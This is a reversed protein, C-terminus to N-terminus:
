VGFTRSRTSSPIALGSQRALRRQRRCQISQGSRCASPRCATLMVTATRRNDKCVQDRPRADLVDVEPRSTISIASNTTLRMCDQSRLYIQCVNACIWDVDEGRSQEKRERGYAIRVKSADGNSTNGDGYLYLTPYNRDM